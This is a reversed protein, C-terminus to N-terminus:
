DARKALNSRQRAVMPSSVAPAPNDWHNRVYTAVAAIQEDNMQWAFSPMGPATPEEKTAVSRSGRLVLRLLSTPDNARAMSSDALSPFLRAVGKGDIQHCAACQDRYIAEGAVMQPNNEPLPALKDSRGPQDKLYTAIAKLDSETMASSAHMVEEAMPGVAAGVRNHGSKLFEAIEDVSWRGLGTREDNTIDPAFWDQLYFGRLYEGSKDGGLFNKPTHCAGCHGPGEVLFAGRNWTDSKQPDAKFREEKFFLVNWVRMANRINFPFPLTNTVVPNRVPEVTKLYARM